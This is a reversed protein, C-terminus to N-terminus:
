NPAVLQGLAMYIPIGVVLNFPFTVGLSATLYVAPRAEPLALRMAAPVAIYSASASLTLFIAASGADLGLAIVVPLTLLASILPMLIGFAVLGPSLLKRDKRLERGALLGMDLLFLCLVGQFPDIIFASVKAMGDNGTIFGILFSGILLVVSGNLLAHRLPNTGMDTNQRGALWLATMIAPAEMAAAVAVLYGDYSGGLIIVSQTAAVFTVISISGYHAALAAREVKPLKTLFALLGFAIVPIAFSLAIGALVVPVAAVIDGGAMSVGGKFGIAFMLYLAMGKAIAEPVNLDSKVLAAILGLAFFLVIPSVLNSGALAFIDM